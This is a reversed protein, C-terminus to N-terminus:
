GGSIASITAYFVGAMIALSMGGILIIWQIALARQAKANDERLERWYRGPNKKFEEATPPPRFYNVYGM